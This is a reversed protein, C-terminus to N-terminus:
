GSQRNALNVLHAVHLDLHLFFPTRGVLLPSQEIVGYVLRGPLKFGQAGLKMAMLFLRLGGNEGRMGLQELIRIEDLDGGGRDGLALAGGEGPLARYLSVGLPECTQAILEERLAGVIKPVNALAHQLEKGPDLSLSWGIGGVRNEDGLIERGRVGGGHLAPLTMPKAVTRPPAVECTAM